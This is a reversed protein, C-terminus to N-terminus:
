ACQVITRALFSIDGCLVCTHFNKTKSLSLHGGEKFHKRKILTYLLRKKNEFTRSHLVAVNADFSVFVCM